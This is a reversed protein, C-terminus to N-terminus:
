LKEIKKSLVPQLYWRHVIGQPRSIATVLITNLGARNAGIIDNIIRDGVMAVQQPKAGTLNLIRQYFHRRPKYSFTIPQVYKAGISRAISAIDRRSNSGIYVTIGSQQMKNIHTIFIPNIVSTQKQLLTEDLDFVVHKIGLKQLKAFDLELISNILYDPYLVSNKGITKM